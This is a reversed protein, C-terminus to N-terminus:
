QSRVAIHSSMQAPDIPESLLPIVPELEGDLVARIAEVPRGYNRLEEPIVGGYFFPKGSTICDGITSSNITVVHSSMALDQDLTNTSFDFGYQASRVSIEHIKGKKEFPHARVLVSEGRQIESIYDLLRLSHWGNGNEVTASDFDLQLAILLDYNRRAGFAQAKRGARRRYQRRKLAQFYTVGDEWFQPQLLRFRSKFQRGGPGRHLTEIGLRKMLTKNTVSLCCSRFFGNELEVRRDEPIFHCAIGTSLDKYGWSVYYLERHQGSLERFFHLYRNAARHGVRRLYPVLFAPYFRRMREVWREVEQNVIAKDVASLPGGRTHEGTGPTGPLSTANVSLVMSPVVHGFNREFEPPLNDVVLFMANSECTLTKAPAETM